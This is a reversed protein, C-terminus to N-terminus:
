EAEYVKGMGGIALIRIIRYPGLRLPDQDEADRVINTAQVLGRFREALRPYTEGYEQLITGREEHTKAGEWSGLFEQLLPLDPDDDGESLDDFNLFSDVDNNLPRGECRRPSHSPSLPIQPPVDQVRSRHPRSRHLSLGRSRRSHGSMASASPIRPK